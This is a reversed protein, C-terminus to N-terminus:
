RPEERHPPTVGPVRVAEDDRDGAEGPTERFTGARGPSVVGRQAEGVDTTEDEAAEDESLRQRDSM